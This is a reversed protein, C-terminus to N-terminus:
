SVPFGYLETGFYDSRGGVWLVSCSDWLNPRFVGGLCRVSPIDHVGAGAFSNM